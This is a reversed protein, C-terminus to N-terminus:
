ERVAKKFEGLKDRLLDTATAPTSDPSTLGKEKMSQAKKKKPPAGGRPRYGRVKMNCWRKWVKPNERSPAGRPSQAPTRALACRSVARPAELAYFPAPALIRFPGFWAETQFGLPM